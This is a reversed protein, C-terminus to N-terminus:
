RSFFGHLRAFTSSEEWRIFHCGAWLDGNEGIRDVHFVGVHVREGNAQWGTRTEFCDRVKRFAAVAHALPFTAGLSTEVTEASKLRLYASGGPGDTEHARLTVPKGERWAAVREAIDASQLRLAEAKRADRRVRERERAAVRAPTSLREERELRTGAIIRADNEV